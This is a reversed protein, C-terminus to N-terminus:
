QVTLNLKELEKNIVEALMNPMQNVLEQYNVRPDQTHLAFNLRVNKSTLIKGNSTSVVKFNINAVANKTIAVFYNTINVYFDDLNVVM